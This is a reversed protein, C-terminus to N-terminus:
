GDFQVSEGCGCMGSAQPSNVTLTKGKLGEDVLDVESGALFSKSMDCLLFLYEGLPQKEFGEPMETEMKWVFEFGACGAPKLALSVGMANDAHKISDILHKRASDTFSIVHDPNFTKLLEM